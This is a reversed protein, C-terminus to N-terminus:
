HLKEKLIDINIQVKQISKKFEEKEKKTLNLEIISEIGNKGLIVPVGITIDKYGYEGELKVSCPFIKEEDNLIAKCMLYTNFAPAFYASTNKLLKVIKAGGNKTNELIEEIDNKSLIDVIKKNDVKAQSILPLMSNSHSGIVIADINKYEFDIKQSIYYKFRASDLAGAMGFVKNRPLKSKQLVSYVMIDLPNSVIIFTANPNLILIDDLISNMIETNKLLLDERSMNPKRIIGATIVIIDCSKFDKNKTCAKITAKSNASFASQSIDLAMAKIFDERIDKLLIEDCLENIALNFALNSGINGVGVIGVIKKNL